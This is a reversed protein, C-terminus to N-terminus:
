RNECIRRDCYDHYFQTNITEATYAPQPESGSHLSRVNRDNGNVIRRTISLHQSVKDIEVTDLPSPLMMSINLTISQNIIPM